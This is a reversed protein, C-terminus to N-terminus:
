DLLSLHGTGTAGLLVAAELILLYAVALWLTPALRRPPGRDTHSVHLRVTRNYSATRVALSPKVSTMTSFEAPLKADQSRRLFGLQKRNRM